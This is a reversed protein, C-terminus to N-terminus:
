LKKVYADLDNRKVRWGRGIKDKSAKLKKGEIATILRDRSIGSLLAAEKISLVLKDAIPVEAPTSQPGATAEMAAGIGERVSERIILGVLERFDSQPAVDSLRALSAPAHAPNASFGAPATEVTPRQPYLEADLKEKFARLDAEEYEVTPRTKGKVYHASIKGQQTYRELARVSCGLYTAAGEKNM